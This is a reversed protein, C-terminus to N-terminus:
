YSQGLIIPFTPNKQKPKKDSVRFLMTKDVSMIKANSHATDQAQNETEALIELTYSVEGSSVSNIEYTYVKLM